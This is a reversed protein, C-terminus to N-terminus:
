SSVQHRATAQQWALLLYNITLSTVQVAVKPHPVAKDLILHCALLTYAVAHTEIRFIQVTCGWRCFSLLSMKIIGQLSFKLWNCNNMLVTDIMIMMIVIHSWSVTACISTRLIPWFSASYPVYKHLRWWAFEAPCMQEKRTHGPGLLTMDLM